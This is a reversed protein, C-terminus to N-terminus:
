MKTMSGKSSDCVESAANLIGLFSPERVVIRARDCVEDLCLRAKWYDAGDASRDFYTASPRQVVTADEASSSGRQRWVGRSDRDKTSACVISEHFRLGLGLCLRCTASSDRDINHSDRITHHWTTTGGPIAREAVKPSFPSM